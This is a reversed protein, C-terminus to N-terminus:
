AASGASASGAGASSAGAASGATAASGAAGVSVWGDAAAGAAGGTGSVVPGTKWVTTIAGSPEASCASAGGGAGFFPHHRRHSCLDAFCPDPASRGGVLRPQTGQLLTGVDFVHRPDTGLGLGHRFVGGRQQAVVFDPHDVAGLIAEGTRQHQAMGLIMQQDPANRDVRRLLAGAEAPTQEIEGLLLRQRAAQGLDAEEGIGLEGLVAGKVRMKAIDLGANFAIVAVIQDMH